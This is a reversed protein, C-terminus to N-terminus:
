ARRRALTADKRMDPNRQTARADFGLLALGAIFGLVFIAEAMLSSRGDSFAYAGALSGVLFSALAGKMM